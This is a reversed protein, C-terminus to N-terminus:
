LGAEGEILKALISAIIKEPAVDTKDAGDTISVKEFREYDCKMLAERDIIFETVTKIM